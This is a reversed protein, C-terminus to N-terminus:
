LPGGGGGELGCASDADLFLRAHPQQRLMSAPCATSIPGRLAARVAAAKRREPVVCLMRGAACLAPVTLTYAYRPVADLAPFAGEGVQQQRCAEDLRVLKVWRPDRFDAVAPDNFAVHGNEGIGLVCLDIPADRLLGEYRECETVPEDAEGCLYHFAAPRLVEEVRERLFRRFSAPHDPEIGLYEDMHFGVIRSWDVEAHRRLEELFRVQSAASAFIVRAQEKEGLVRMLRAAAAAAAEAAMVDHSEHVEVELVDFLLKRM